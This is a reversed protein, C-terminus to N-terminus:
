PSPAAAGPGKDKELRALEAQAAIKAFSGRADAAAAARFEKEAEARKGNLLAAQGLYFAAECRQLTGDVTRLADAGTEGLFYRVAAMPWRDAPWAPSLQQASRALMDPRHLRRAAITHWLALTPNAGPRALAAALDTEAAAFNGRMFRLQGRNALVDGANPNAALSASFDAEATAFQGQLLRALGRGNLADPEQPRVRLVASFDAEAAPLDAARLKATARFFLLEADAPAIKLLVTFDEAAGKADGSQLRAVGRAQRAAADDPQAKLLTTLDAIAAPFNEARGAATARGRLADVDAPAIALAATFAALAEASHDSRLHAQGLLTLSEADRPDLRAAQSLDAVAELLKGQELSAKGLVRVPLPNNPAYRRAARMDTLGEATAKRRLRMEARAILAAANAPDKALVASFDDEAATGQRLQGRALLLRTDDPVFKLAADLDTLADASRGEAILANARAGLADARTANPLNPDSATARCAAIKADPAADPSFCTLRDDALAPAAAILLLALARM